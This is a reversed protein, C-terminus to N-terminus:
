AVRRSRVIGAVGIAMGLVGVVLAVISLTTASGADSSASAASSRAEGIASDLRPIERDVRQALQGVTPDQVPFEVGTPDNVDDFTKPGSTFTEDVPQGNLKGTFHFSYQGPRTPIFWARYDGPIGWEGVEFNPEIPLSLSQDGFGVSVKLGPRLTTVPKGAADSLLLQVSNVQGAYPPESGFGVGVHYKGVHAEEHAFAPGALVVVISTGALVALVLTSKRVIRQV